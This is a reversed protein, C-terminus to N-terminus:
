PVPLPLGASASSGFPLPLISPLHRSAPLAQHTRGWGLRGRQVAMLFSHHECADSFVGSQFGLGAALM